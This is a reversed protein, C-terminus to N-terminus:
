LTHIWMCILYMDIHKLKLIDQFTLPYAPSFADIPKACAKGVICYEFFGLGHAPIGGNSARYRMMSLKFHEVHKRMDIDINNINTNLHINTNENTCANTTM